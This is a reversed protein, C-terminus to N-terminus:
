LLEKPIDLKSSIEFMHKAHALIKEKFIRFNFDQSETVIKYVKEFSGADTLSFKKGLIFDVAKRPDDIYKVSSKTKAYDETLPSGEYELRKGNEDLLTFHKNSVMDKDLYLQKWELLDGNEDEKMVRSTVTFLIANLLVNRHALKYVTEQVDGTMTFKVFDPNKTMMFDVQVFKGSAGEQPFKVHVMDYTFTNIYSELGCNKVCFENFALLNELITGKINRADLCIDLDGSEEKQGTSGLLFVDENKLDSFVKFIVEEKFKEVTPLVNEKLIKSVDQLANGGEKILM